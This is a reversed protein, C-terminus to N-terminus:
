NEDRGWSRWVHEDGFGGEEEVDEDLGGGGEGEDERGGGVEVWAWRGGGEDKLGEAAQQQRTVEHGQRKQLPRKIPRTPMHSERQCEPVQPRAITCDHPEAPLRPFLDIIRRPPRKPAWNHM